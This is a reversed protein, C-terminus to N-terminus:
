GDTEGNTLTEIEKAAQQHFENQASKWNAHMAATNRMMLFVRATASTLEYALDAGFVFLDAPIFRRRPTDADLDEYGYEDDYEDM